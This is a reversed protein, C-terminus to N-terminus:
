VLQLSQILKELVSKIKPIDEWGTEALISMM